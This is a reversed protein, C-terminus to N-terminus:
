SSPAQGRTGAGPHGLRRADGTRTAPVGDIAFREGFRRLHPSTFTGVRLGAARLISATMAATSGKGNSGTIKLCPPGEGIARRVRDLGIGDGYRPWRRLESYVDPPM